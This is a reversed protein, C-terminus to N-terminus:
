PIKASGSSFADESMVIILGTSWRTLLVLLMGPDGGVFTSLVEANTFELITVIDEVSQCAYGTSSKPRVDKMDEFMLQIGTRQATYVSLARVTFETKLDDSLDKFADVKGLMDAALARVIWQGAENVTSSDCPEVKHSRSNSTVVFAV